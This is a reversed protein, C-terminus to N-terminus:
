NQGNRMNDMGQVSSSISQNGSISALGQSRSHHVASGQGPSTFDRSLNERIRANQDPNRQYHHNESGLVRGSSQEARQDRPLDSSRAELARPRSDAHDRRNRQILNNRNNYM